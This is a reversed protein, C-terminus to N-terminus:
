LVPAGSRSRTSETASNCRARLNRPPYCRPAAELGSPPWFGEFCDIRGDGIANLSEPPPRRNSHDRPITLLQPDANSSQARRTRNPRNITAQDGGQTQMTETDDYTSVEILNGDPDGFYVSTIPGTAGTRAVPGEEVPVQCARLHAVLRALPTTTVLCVDASGPTPRRAKPAQEHGAQHPNLNHRGFRLRPPRRRLHSAAHRARPCLLRRDPRPRRRHPGPPRDPRHRGTPSTSTPHEHPWRGQTSTPGSSWCGRRPGPAPGCWPSWPPRQGGAVAARRGQAAQLDDGARRGHLGTGKTARTRLRVTAFTSEIPNSTKRHRWHEAPFDDFCL